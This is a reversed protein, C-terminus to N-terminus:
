LKLSHIELNHIRAKIIIISTEKFNIAKTKLIFQARHYLEEKERTAIIRGKRNRKEELKLCFSDTRLRKDENRVM